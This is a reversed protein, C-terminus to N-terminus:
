VGVVLADVVLVDVVKVDLDPVDVVNQDFQMHEVWGSVMGDVTAM